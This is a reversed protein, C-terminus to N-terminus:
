LDAAAEPGFGVLVLLYLYFLLVILTDCYQLYNLMHGAAKLRRSVNLSAAASFLFVCRWWDLSYFFVLQFKLWLIIRRLLIFRGGTPVVSCFTHSGATQTFAAKDDKCLSCHRTGLYSCRNVVAPDMVAPACCMHTTWMNKYIKTRCWFFLSSRGSVEAPPVSPAGVQFWVAFLAWTTVALSFEAPAPQNVLVAGFSCCLFCPCFTCFSFSTWLVLTTWDPPARLALLQIISCLEMSLLWFFVTLREAEQLSARVAIQLQLKVM